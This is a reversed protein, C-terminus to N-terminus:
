VTEPPLWPRQAADECWFSCREQASLTMPVALINRAREGVAAAAALAAEAEAAEAEDAEAQAKEARQSAALNAAVQPHPSQVRM